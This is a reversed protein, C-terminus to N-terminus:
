CEQVGPRSRSAGVGACYVLRMRRRRARYGSTRVKEGHFSAFWAECGVARRGASAAM